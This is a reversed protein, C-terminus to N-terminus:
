SGSRASAQDVVGARAEVFWPLWGQDVDVGGYWSQDTQIFVFCFLLDFGRRPVRGLLFRPRFAFM